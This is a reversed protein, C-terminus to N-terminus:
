IRTSLAPREGAAPLRKINRASSTSPMSAWRRGRFRKCDFGKRSTIPRRRGGSVDVHPCSRAATRLASSADALCQSQTRALWSGRRPISAPERRCTGQGDYQQQIGSPPHTRVQMPAHQNSATCTETLHRSPVSWFFPYSCSFSNMEMTRCDRGFCLQWVGSRTSISDAHM